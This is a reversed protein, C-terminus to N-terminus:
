LPLAEANQLKFSLVLQVHTRLWSRNVFEGQNYREMAIFSPFIIHPHPAVEGAKLRAQVFM